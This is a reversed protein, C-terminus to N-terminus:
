RQSTLIPYGANINSSDAEWVGSGAGETLYNLLTGDKMNDTVLKIYGTYDASDSGTSNYVGLAGEPNYTGDEADTDVSTESDYYCYTINSESAGGVVGGLYASKTSTILGYSYCATVTSYAFGVVGGVCANNANVGTCTVAGGNYCNEITAGSAAYGVVGGVYASGGEATVAALNYCNEITGGCASGVVGGVWDNASITGDVGVNKITAGYTRGFLGQQSSNNNIYVGSVLFGGGDFTGQYQYDNDSIGIPTWDNGEGGLDIDRTLLGNASTNQTVTGLDEGGNTTYGSNATIGENVISAFAELGAATNIYYVDDYLEIDYLPLYAELDDDDGVVWDTITAGTISAGTKNITVNYKYEKGKALTIDELELTYTVGDLLFEITIDQEASPILIAEATTGNSSTDAVIDAEDGEGSIASTYINYNATTNQSKITTKLGALDTFGVGGTLTLTLKSLQHEFANDETFTVSSSSESAGSFTATVLDVDSIVQDNTGESAVSVEITNDSGLTATYPYYAYFDVKSGDSPLYITTSSPTFTGAGGSTVSSVKYSVNEYDGTALTTTGNKTMSIGILDGTVWKDDAVRTIQGASFIAAVSGSPDVAEMQSNDDSCGVMAVVALAAILAKKM